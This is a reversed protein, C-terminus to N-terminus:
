SENRSEIVRTDSDRKIQMDRLEKGAAMYAYELHDVFKSLWPGEKFYTRGLRELEIFKYKLVTQLEVSQSDYQVYDFRSREM